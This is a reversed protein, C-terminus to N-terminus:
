VHRRMATTGDDRRFQVARRRKADFRVHPASFFFRAARTTKRISNSVILRFRRDFRKEGGGRFPIPTGDPDRLLQRSPLHNLRRRM